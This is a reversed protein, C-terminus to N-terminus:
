FHLTTQLKAKLEGLLSNEDEIQPRPNDKQQVLKLANRASAKNHLETIFSLTLSPPLPSSPPLSSPPPLPSPPPLSSPPPLTLSPPLSSPLPLPTLSNNTGCPPPYDPELYLPARYNPSAPINDNFRPFHFRMQNQSPESIQCFVGTASTIPSYQHVPGSSDPPRPCQETSFRVRPFNTMSYQPRLFLPIRNQPSNRPRESQQQSPGTQMVDSTNRTGRMGTFPRARSPQLLPASALRSTHWFPLFRPFWPM